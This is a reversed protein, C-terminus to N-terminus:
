GCVEVTRMETYLSELAKSAIRFQSRKKQSPKGDVVAYWIGPDYYLKGTALAALVKLFDAGTGLRVKGGYHYRLEGEKSRLFPVYVASAHKRRWHSILDAFSWSAAIKDHQDVLAISGAPDTLQGNEYGLLRLTLGSKKCLADAIHRGSFDRRAVRDPKPSQYGYEHVFKVLGETKYVGGSPEPTMLTVAGAALGVFNTVSYAKVEWGYFDPESYGNPRIGLEAELTYGGCQSATCPVVTDGKLRKSVIWGLKHIRCLEALLAKEEDQATAFKALPIEVFVGHVPDGMDRVAAAAASDHAAAYGIVQERRVGLFLVRGPQRTTGMLESPGEKCGKLYGSFRVEPYDPYLILQAGPALCLGGDEQLWSFRLRAKFNPRKGGPSAVPAASPLINLASWDGGFYPQNKSNDNAALIKAYLREVGHDSMAQVLASLDM